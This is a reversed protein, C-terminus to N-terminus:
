TAKVMVRAGLTGLLGPPNPPKMGGDCVAFNHIRVGDAGVGMRLTARAASIMGMTWRVWLQGV